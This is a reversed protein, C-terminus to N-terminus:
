EVKNGDPFYFGSKYTAGLLSGIKELEEQTFKGVTLRKAFNQQSTGLRRALESVSIDAFECAVKIKQEITLIKDSERRKGAKM